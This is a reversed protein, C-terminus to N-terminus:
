DQVEGPRAIVVEGFGDTVLCEIAKVALDSAPAPLRRLADRAGYPRRQEDAFCARARAVM